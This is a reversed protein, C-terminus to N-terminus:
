RKFRCSPPLWNPTWVSTGTAYTGARPVNHAVVEFEARLIATAFCPTWKAKMGSSSEEDACNLLSM